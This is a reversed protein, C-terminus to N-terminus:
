KIYWVEGYRCIKKVIWIMDEYRILLFILYILMIIMMVVWRRDFGIIVCFRNGYWFFILCNLVCNVVNKLFLCKEEIGGGGLFFGFEYFEIERCVYYNGIDIVVKEKM